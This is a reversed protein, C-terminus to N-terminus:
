FYRQQLVGRHHMEHGAIIYAISRVSFEYGSATGRLVSTEDDFGAFLFISSRRVTEFEDALDALSRLSANSADAWDNEEMSPLHTPDRRAFSLARYAFLRETDVLHGIVERVSWKGPAYAYQERDAAVGGLLDLTRRCEEALRSLIDGDPVLDIYRRYYEFHESPEPRQIM